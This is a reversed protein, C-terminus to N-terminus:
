EKSRVVRAQGRQEAELGGQPNPLSSKLKYFLSDKDM